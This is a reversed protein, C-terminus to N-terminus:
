ASGKLIEKDTNTVTAGRNVPLMEILRGEKEIIRAQEGFITKQKLYKEWRKAESFHQLTALLVFPPFVIAAIRGYGNPCWRRRGNMFEIIKAKLWTDFGFDFTHPPGFYRQIVSPATTYGAMGFACLATLFYNWQRTRQAEIEIAFDEVTQFRRWRIMWDDLFQLKIEPKAIEGVM